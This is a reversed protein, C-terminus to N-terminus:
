NRVPVCFNFLLLCCYWTTVQRESVNDRKESPWINHWIDLLWISYLSKSTLIVSVVQGIIVWMTKYMLKEGTINLIQLEFWVIYYSVCLLKMCIWYIVIGCVLVLLCFQLYKLECDISLLWRYLKRYLSFQRM